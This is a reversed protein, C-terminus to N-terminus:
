CSFAERFIRRAFPKMNAAKIECLCALEDGYVYGPNSKLFFQVDARKAERHSPTSYPPALRGDRRAHRIIGSAADYRSGFVQTAIVDRTADLARKSPKRWDPVFEYTFAPLYRYTRHAKVILLWYLRQDPTSAAIRGIERIWALALAQTGWYKRDIITDGSFIVRILEHQVNLEMEALTSFGSLTGQKDHLLIISDKANLDANFQEFPVQDYYRSFLQHMEFIDAATLDAPRAIRSKLM